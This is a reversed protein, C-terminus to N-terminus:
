DIESVGKMAEQQSRLPEENELSRQRPSRGHPQPHPNQNKRTNGLLNQMAEASLIHGPRPQPPKSPQHSLHCLFRRAPLFGTGLETGIDGAREPVPSHHCSVTCGPVAECAPPFAAPSFLASLCRQVPHRQDLILSTAAAQTPAPRGHPCTLTGWGCQTAGHRAKGHWAM